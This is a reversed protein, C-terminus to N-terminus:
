QSCKVDQFKETELNRKKETDRQTSTDETVGLGKKRSMTGNPVQRRM